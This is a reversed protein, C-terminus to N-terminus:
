RVTLRHLSPFSCCLGPQAAHVHPIRPFSTLLARVGRGSPIVALSLRCYFPEPRRSCAKQGYAPELHKVRPVTGSPFNWPLANGHGLFFIERAAATICSCFFFPSFSHSTGARRLKFRTSFSWWRLASIYLFQLITVHLLLALCHRSNIGHIWVDFAKMTVCSHSWIDQLSVPCASLRSCM